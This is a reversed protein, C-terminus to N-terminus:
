EKLGPVPVAYTLFARAGEVKTVLRYNMFPAANFFKLSAKKTATADFDSADFRVGNGSSIDYWSVGAPDQVQLRIEIGAPPDLVLIFARELIAHFSYGVDDTTFLIQKVPNQPASM